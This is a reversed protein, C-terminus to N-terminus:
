RALWQSLVKKTDPRDGEVETAWLSITSRLWRVSQSRESHSTGTTWINEKNIQNLDEEEEAFSKFISEDPIAYDCCPM